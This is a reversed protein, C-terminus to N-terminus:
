MEYSLGVCIRIDSYIGFPFKYLDFSRKDLLNQPECCSMRRRSQTGKKHDSYQNRIFLFFADHQVSTIRRLGRRAVGAVCFKLRRNTTPNLFLHLAYKYLHFSFTIYLSKYKRIDDRYFETYAVSSLVCNDICYNCVSLRKVYATM